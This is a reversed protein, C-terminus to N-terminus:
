DPLPIMNHRGQAGRMWALDPKKEQDNGGDGEEEEDNDEQEGIHWPMIEEWKCAPLNILPVDELM